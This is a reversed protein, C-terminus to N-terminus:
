GVGKVMNLIKRFGLLIFGGLVIIYFIFNIFFFAPMVTSLIVTVALLGLMVYRSVLMEAGTLILWAVILSQVLFFDNPFLALLAFFGIVIVVLKLREETDKATILWAGIALYVLINVITEYLPPFFSM